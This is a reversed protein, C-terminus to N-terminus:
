NDEIVKRIANRCGFKGKLDTILTPFSIESNLYFSVQNVPEKPIEFEGKEEKGFFEHGLAESVSCRERPDKELMKKLLDFATSFQSKNKLCCSHNFEIDCMKNKFIVEDDSGAKFLIKRFLYYYFIIGASFIDMKSDLGTEHKEPLSKFIEPAFFGPTGAIRFLENKNNYDAALGFDLIKLSTPDNQDKFLINYPKLDKHVIEHQEMHQIGKLLSQMIKKIEETTEPLNKPNHIIPDGNLYEM